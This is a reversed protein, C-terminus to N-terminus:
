YGGFRQKYHRNMEEVTTSITTGSGKVMFIMDEKVEGIKKVEFDQLGNEFSEKKTPDISVIFRSQSESYCKKEFPLDEGPINILDIEVGWCGAISMKAVATLLGGKEISSCASFIGKTHMEYMKEYYHM